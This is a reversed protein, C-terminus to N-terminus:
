AKAGKRLNSLWWVVPLALLLAGTQLLPTLLVAIAGQADPHVYVVDALFLM